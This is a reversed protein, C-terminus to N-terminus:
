GQEETRLRHLFPELEALTRELAGTGEGAVARAREALAAREAGDALLKAVAGALGDPAEVRVAAHAEWLDRYVARTNAVAPGTVIPVGLQAPEVPNHGGVPAFSGALFVVEALRLFLGMEGLTDALYVETQAEPVGGQSRCAFALGRGALDRAIDDGRVPHRPMLVTLLDPFRERLRAHAALAIDEEGPHTSAALWVRRGGLAARLRALEAEDAAPPEVDYKLNGPSRVAAVGLRRYREADSRSQALCLDVTSFLARALRGFRKWRAFSRVSLRGNVVVLPIAREALLSFTAPWVESEVMLALEPRWHDLFRRLVPPSDYPVFQHVAGAPLRQAAVEASTTTVTTLLVSSGGDVLREVLPLVSNTEGVSAAHVWVLRGDPRVLATRGFREGGRAPDDKGVRCRLKHVIWAAPLALTALGRYVTLVASRREAM